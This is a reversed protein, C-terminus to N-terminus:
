ENKHLADQAEAITISISNFMGTLVENAIWKHQLQKELEVVHRRLSVNDATYAEVTAKYAAAQSELQQILADKQAASMHLQVFMSAENTRDLM